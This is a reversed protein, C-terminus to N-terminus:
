SDLLFTVYTIGNTKTKGPRDLSGVHTCQYFLWWSYVWSINRNKGKIEKGTVFNCERERQTFHYYM